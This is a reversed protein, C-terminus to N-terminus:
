TAYKSQKHGSLSQQQQNRARLLRGILRWLQGSFNWGHGIPAPSLRETALAYARSPRGTLFSECLGTASSPCLIQVRYTGLHFSTAVKAMAKHLLREENM